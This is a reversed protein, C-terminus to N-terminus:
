IPNGHDDCETAKDKLYYKNTSKNYYVITANTPLAYSYSSFSNDFDYVVVGKYTSPLFQTFLGTMTSFYCKATMKVYQLSSCGSFMYYISQSNESLKLTSDLTALQIEPAETLRTCNNFMYYYCSQQAFKAYLVTPAKTLNTCNRFMHAYCYARAETAPLEPAESLNSCGRFIEQYCGLSLVKAPLEPAKTLNTCGKFTRVYCYDGLNTSPLQPPTILNTYNLFMDCFMKSSMTCKDALILNDCYINFQNIKLINRTNNFRKEESCFYEEETKDGNHLTYIHGGVNIDSVHVVNIDDGPLEDDYLGKIYIKNSIIQDNNSFLIWNQKDESFYYKNNANEPVSFSFEHTQGDKYEIYFYDTKDKEPEDSGKDSFDPVDNGDGDKHDWESYKVLPFSSVDITTKFNTYLDDPVVVCKIYQIYATLIKINDPVFEYDSLDIVLNNANYNGGLNNNQITKVSSFKIYRLKNNNDSIDPGDSGDPLINDFSKPFIIWKWKNGGYISLLDGVSYTSNYYEQRYTYKKPVILVNWYNGVTLFSSKVKQYLSAKDSYSDPLTMYTYLVDEMLPGTIDYISSTSGTIIQKIKDAFLDLSDQVSCDVGKEQIANAIDAKDRLIRQLNESINM